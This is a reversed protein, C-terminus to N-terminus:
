LWFLKHIYILVDVYLTSSFSVLEVCRNRFKINLKLKLFSFTVNIHGSDPKLLWYRLKGYTNMNDRSYLLMAM